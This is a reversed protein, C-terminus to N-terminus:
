VGQYVQQAHVGDSEVRESKAAASELVEEAMCRCQGCSVEAGLMRFADYYTRAGRGSVEKIDKDTLANCVCVYM